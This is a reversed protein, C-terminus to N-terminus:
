NQSTQPFTESLSRQRIQQTPGSWNRIRSSNVRMPVSSSPTEMESTMMAVSGFVSPSAVAM